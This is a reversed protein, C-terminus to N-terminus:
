QWVEETVDRLTYIFREDSILYNKNELIEYNAGFYCNFILRFSNVPTIYPHLVKKCDGPLHLANLNKLSTRADDELGSRSGHDGQLIIIPRSQSKNQVAEIFKEVLKNTCILKDIYGARGEKQKAQLSDVIHCESDLNAPPHPSMIHAIVLKPSDVQMGPIEDLRDFAYLVGEGTDILGDSLIRDLLLPNLVSFKNLLILFFDNKLFTLGALDWSFSIDATKSVSTPTYSGSSVYIYKYGRAKLFRQIENDDIMKRLPATNGATTAEGGYKEVLDDLYRMNLSSAISLFTAGYNSASEGVIYFGRQSLFDYFDDNSYDLLKLLTDQHGYADLIIYYIDPAAQKAAFGIDVTNEGAAPGELGREAMAGQYQHIVIQALPIFIIFISTFNLVKTLYGLDQRTKVAFYTGAVFIAAFAALLYRIRAYDGLFTKLASIVPGYFFFLVFFLSVIIGSKRYNRLLAGLTLWVSAAVSAIILVAVLPERWFFLWDNKSYFFAAPYVSFLIPHIIVPRKM